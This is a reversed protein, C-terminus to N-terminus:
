IVPKNTRLWLKATVTKNDLIIIYEKYIYLPSRYKVNYVTSM